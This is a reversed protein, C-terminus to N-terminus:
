LILANAPVTCYPPCPNGSNKIKSGNAAIDTAQQFNGSDTVGVIVVTIDEPKTSDNLAFYIRIGTCNPQSLIDLIENRPFSIAKANNPGHAAQFAKTKVSAINLSIDYPAM